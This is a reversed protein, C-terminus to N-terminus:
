AGTVSSRKFRFEVYMFSTAPLDALAQAANYVHVDAAKGAATYSDQDPHATFGAVGAPVTDSITALCGVYTGQADSFTFRYIGTSVWTVTVGAGFNKTPNAAGAGEFRVPIVYSDPESARDVYGNLAM